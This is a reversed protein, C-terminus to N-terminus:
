RTKVREFPNKEANNQIKTHGPLLMKAAEDYGSYTKNLFRGM